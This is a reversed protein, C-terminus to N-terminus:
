FGIEPNQRDSKDRVDDLMTLLYQKERMQESSLNKKGTKLIPNTIANIELIKKHIYIADEEFLKSNVRALNEIKYRGRLGISGKGLKYINHLEDSSSIIHGGCSFDPGKIYKLIRSLSINKNRIMAICANCVEVLNHSPVETAMGVAIGSAGNLLIVPLRSPLQKPEQLSGDYNSVYEVTGQKLEDLLIESFNSLRAETYRMAAADDGDRLWFKRETM